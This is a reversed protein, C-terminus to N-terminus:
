MCLKSEIIMECEDLTEYEKLLPHMPLCVHIICTDMLKHDWMRLWSM